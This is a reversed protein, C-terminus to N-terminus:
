TGIGNLYLIIQVVAGLNWLAHFIITALLSNTVLRAVGLFVALLWIVLIGAPGYQLHLIAFSISTLAVAGLAGIKSQSIGTFLFGRFFSEEFIPAFIVAAIGFLILGSGTYSGITSDANQLQPLLKELYINLVFFAILIILLVLFTIKKFPRLGLYEKLTINGRLKVFLIILGMGVPASIMTVLAVYFSNQILNKAINAYDSVNSNIIENILFPMTVLTQIILWGTFIIAGFGITPWFPWVGKKPTPTDNPTLPINDGTPPTPAANEPISNIQPMESEM